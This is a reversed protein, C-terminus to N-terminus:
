GTGRGDRRVSLHHPGRSGPRREFCGHHALARPPSALVRRQGSTSMAYLDLSGGLITNFWVEKGDPSWALDLQDGRTETSYSASTGERDLFTIQWAGSLGHPREGVALMDGDPSLRFGGLQNTTEYLKTGVPYEVRQHGGEVRVVALADGDVTRDALLVDEMVERSAEGVLSSIALTGPRLYVGHGPEKKLITIDGELSVAYIDAGMLELPRSGRSGPRTSFM